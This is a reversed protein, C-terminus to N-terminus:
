AAKQYNVPALLKAALALLKEEDWPKAMFGQVFAAFFARDEVSYDTATGGTLVVYKADAQRRIERSRRILAIGTMAPMQMDTIILDFSKKEMLALAAVADTMATVSLGGEELHDKLLACLGPEDDIVLVEGKLQVIAHANQMIGIKAEEKTAIHMRPLSIFFTTGEGEQSTVHLSGGFLTIISYSIALGLGTGKGVPKTTFFPDFIKNIIPAPIGGGNDSVLIIVNDEEACTEIVIRRESPRSALADCANSLLNILVQQLKGVNGRVHPSGAASKQEIEVGASKSLQRIFFIVESIVKNMDVAVIEDTDTRAYAGLSDVIAVIRAIARNITEVTKDDGDGPAAEALRKALRGTFGRVIALPNNIEHAVGAALTGISALKETHVLQQQMASREREARKRESIDHVIAYILPYRQLQVLSAYVEVDRLEGSKMRHVSEFHTGGADMINAVREKVKELSHPTLDSMKLAACETASYGYFECAADNFGVVNGTVPNTMYMVALNKEYMARYRAAAEQILHRRAFEKWTFYFYALVLLCGLLSCVIAILRFWPEARDGNLQVLQWGELPLVGLAVIMRRGDYDVLTGSAVRAPMIPRADVTSFQHSAQVSELQNKEVPWMTRHALGPDSSILVVGEPSILFTPVEPRALAAIGQLGVKIVAVGLVLGDAGLIPRSFYCGPLKSTLGMALYTEERGMRASQFYFRQAYSKGVFSDPERANSSAITMGDRDLLYAVSSPPLQAAFRDLLANVAILADGHPAVIGQRIEPAGALISSVAKGHDLISTLADHARDMTIYSRLEDFHRGFRGALMVFVSSFAVLAALSLALWRQQLIGRPEESRDQSDHVTRLFYEWLAFAIAFALAMRVLQIPISCVLLFSEQSVRNAPFFGADPVVCGAALGYCFMASAAVKLSTGAAQGDRGSLRWLAIAALLGGPLGLAYRAMAHVGAMGALAGAAVLSLLVPYMWRGLFPRSKATLALRGFEILFLFSLAMTTLRIVDFVPGSGMLFKMMDLWENGAHVFAFLALWGWGRSGETHPQHMHPLLTFGLWIFSLGYVFFIYDMNELLLEKM